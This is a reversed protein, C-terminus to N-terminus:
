QYNTPQWAHTNMKNMSDSVHSIWEINLLWDLHQQQQQQQQQQPHQQPHQPHQDHHHPM